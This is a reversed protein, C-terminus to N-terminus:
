ASEYFQLFHSNAEVHRDARGDTQRCPVVWSGSSPNEHFKINSYKEFSQWLFELIMLIQCSYCTRQMFVLICKKDYREWNNMSHSINLAFTAYSTLVYMRHEIVKKKKLWATQSTIHFFMTHGYLDCIYSLNTSMLFCTLLVTAILTAEYNWKDAKMMVTSM